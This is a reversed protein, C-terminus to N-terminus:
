DEVSASAQLLEWLVMEAEGDMEVSVAEAGSPPPEACTCVFCGSAAARRHLWDLTM